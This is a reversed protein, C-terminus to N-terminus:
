RRSYLGFNLFNDLGLMGIGKMDQSSVRQLNRGLGAIRLLRHSNPGKKRFSLCGPHNPILIWFSGGGHLLQMGIAEKLLNKLISSFQKWILQTNEVM